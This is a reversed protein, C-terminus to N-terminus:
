ACEVEHGTLPRLRAKCENCQYAGLLAQRVRRPGIAHRVGECECGFPESNTAKTVDYSHCRAPFLGFALMVTQWESGHPDTGEANQFREALHAVEHGVIQHIFNTANETLLVANLRVHNKKPYARGAAHGQQDFSVTPMPMRIGMAHALEVCEAIRQRVALRLEPVVVPTVTKSFLIERPLNM